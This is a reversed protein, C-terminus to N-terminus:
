QFTVGNGVFQICSLIKRWTVFEELNDIINIQFFQGFTM